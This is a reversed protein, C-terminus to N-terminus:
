KAKKSMLHLALAPSLILFVLILRVNMFFYLVVKGFEGKETRFLNTTWMEWTNWFAVILVFLVIAFMIGIFFTRLLLNRWFFIKEKEM